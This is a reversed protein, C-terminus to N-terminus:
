SWCLFTTSSYRARFSMTESLDGTYPVVFSPNQELFYVHFDDGAVGNYAIVSVTNLLVPVYSPGERLNDYQMVINQVASGAPAAFRVNQLTLEHETDSSIEGGRTTFGIDFRVNLDNRLYTNEVALNMPYYSLSRADLVGALPASQIDSNSVVVDGGTSMLILNAERSVLGDIVVGNLDGYIMVSSDFMNWAKLSDIHHNDGGTRHDLWVGEGLTYAENGRFQTFNVSTFPVFAVRTTDCTQETCSLDAGPVLPQKVVLSSFDNYPAYFGGSDGGEDDFQTFGYAGAAVNDVFTSGIGNLWFGSGATTDVAFNHQFLDHSESGDETVFGAKIAHDIVNDQILGFHSDHVAMGWKLASEIVNGVLKFQYPQGSGPAPGWLHHLHLAYRGIHNTAPDLTGPMTRGLDKFAVSEIDVNARHTFLTHGRIGARDLSHIVVNRSLDAVHPLFSIAGAGDRAGSHDYELPQDLSLSTGGAGDRLSGVETQDGYLANFGSPALVLRDGVSWGSTADAVHLTSDGSLPESTTRTFTPSKVAGHMSVTGWALLGGGYQDPDRSTDLPEGGLAIEAQVQAQVPAAETGVELVGTELVLLSATVLRTNVDTRFSLRGGPHVDVDKLRVDSALDYAVTFGPEIGVIDGAGPIRGLSWTAPSSWPGSTVTWINPHSGFDPIHDSPTNIVDPWQPFPVGGFWGMLDVAINVTNLENYIRVHADPGLRVVVLNPINEGPNVNLDSAQPLPSGDDPYVTVFTGGTASIATVNLAVATAQDSPVTLQISQHPGLAGGTLRTDLIRFPSSAAFLEGEDPNSGDTFYGSADVVVDVTGLNNAIDIGGDPGLKVVARNPLNRGPPFNLNSALPQDGGSPFATLYSGATGAVATLNVVVAILGSGPLGQHGAVPLTIKSHPGMHQGTIRTDLPRQPQTLAQFRGAGPGGSANFWGEIDFVVDVSGNRNYVSAKGDASLQVSVLNAINQGPAFNLNSALPVQGGGPYMTLFSGASGAVATVNLLVGAAGAPVSQGGPGTVGTIQVSLSSDPGIRNNTVRTDLVRYPALPTYNGTSPATPAAASAPVRLPAAAATTVTRSVAGNCVGAVLMLACFGAVRRARKLGWDAM